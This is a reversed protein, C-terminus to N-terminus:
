FHTTPGAMMFQAQSLAFAVLIGLLASRALGAPRLPEDRRWRWVLYVGLFLAVLVASRIGRLRWEAGAKTTPLGGGDDLMQRIDDAPVGLGGSFTAVAVVRGSDDVVPSGSSGPRTEATYRVTRIDRVPVGVANIAGTTVTPGVGEPYGVVVVGTGVDVDVDDAVRLAPRDGTECKIVALDRDRDAAATYCESTGGDAFDVYIDGTSARAVHLNTVLTDPRAIWASGNRGASRVKAVSRTVSVAVAGDRPGGPPAPAAGAVPWSLAFCMAVVGAGRGFM